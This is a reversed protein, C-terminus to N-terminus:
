IWCGSKSKDAIFKSKTRIKLHPCGKGLVLCYDGGSSINLVM